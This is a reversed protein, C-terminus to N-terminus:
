GAPSGRVCICLDACVSLCVSVSQTKSGCMCTSRQVVSYASLDNCRLANQRRSAANCRCIEWCCLVTIQNRELTFPVASQFNTIHNCNSIETVCYNSLSTPQRVPLKIFTQFRNQRQKSFFNSHSTNFWCTWATTESSIDVDMHVSFAFWM